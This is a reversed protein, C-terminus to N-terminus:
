KGNSQELEREALEKAYYQEVFEIFKGYATNATRERKGHSQELERKFSEITEEWTCDNNKYNIYLNYADDINVRYNFVSYELIKLDDYVVYWHGRWAVLKKYKYWDSGSRRISNGVDSGRRLRRRHLYHYKNIIEKYMKLIRRHQHKLM